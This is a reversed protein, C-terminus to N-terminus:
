MDKIQAEVELQALDEPAPEPFNEMRGEARRDAGGPSVAQSSPRCRRSRGAARGPPMVHPM